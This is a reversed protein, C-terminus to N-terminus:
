KYQESEAINKLGDYLTKDTVLYRGANKSLLIELYDKGSTEDRFVIFGFSKRSRVYHNLYVQYYPNNEKIKEFQADDREAIVTTKKILSFIEVKLKEYEDESFNSTTIRQTEDSGNIYSFHLSSNYKDLSDKVVLDTLDSETYFDRFYFYSYAIIVVFIIGFILKKSRKKEKVVVSM